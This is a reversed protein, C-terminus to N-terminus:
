WNPPRGDSFLGLQSNWRRHVGHLLCHNWSAAVIDLCQFCTLAWEFTPTSWQLRWCWTHGHKDSLQILWWKGLSGLFLLDAGSNMSTTLEQAMICGCSISIGQSASQFGTFIQSILILRWLSGLFCFTGLLQIKFFCLDEVPLMHTQFHPIGHYVRGFLWWFNPFHNMVSNPDDNEWSSFTM